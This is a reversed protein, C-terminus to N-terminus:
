PARRAAASGHDERRHVRVRPGHGGSQPVRHVGGASLGAAYRMGADGPPIGPRFVAAYGGGGGPPAGAAHGARRVGGNEDYRRLHSGARRHIGAARGAGKRHDRGKGAAGRRRGCHHPVAGGCRRCDAAPLPVRCEYQDRRRRAARQGRRHDGRYPAYVRRRIAYTQDPDDRTRGHGAPM